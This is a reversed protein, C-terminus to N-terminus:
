VAEAQLETLGEIVERVIDMAASGSQDWLWLDVGEDTENVAGRGIAKRLGNM